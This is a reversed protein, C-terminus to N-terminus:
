FRQTAPFALRKVALSARYGPSRQKIWDGAVTGPLEARMYGYGFSRKFQLFGLLESALLSHFIGSM